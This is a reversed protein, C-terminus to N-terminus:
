GLVHLGVVMTHVVMGSEPAQIILLVVLCFISLLLLLLLLLLTVQMATLL